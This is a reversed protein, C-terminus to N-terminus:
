IEHKPRMFFKEIIFAPPDIQGPDWGHRYAGPKYHHNAHWGEGLSLITNFGSNTARSGEYPRKGIIHALTALVSVGNFCGIAPFIFVYMIFHPQLFMLAYLIFWVPFYIKHILKLDRDNALDAILRKPLKEGSWMVLWVRLIGLKHPDHIDKETDAHIHHYRHVLAWSIPSGQGVFLTMYKLFRGRWYGTEFSRHVVYRHLGVNAGVCGIFLFSGFAVALWLLSAQGSILWWIGVAFLIHNLIHQIKLFQENYQSM